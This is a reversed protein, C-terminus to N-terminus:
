KSVEGMRMATAVSVLDAKREAPVWVSVRVLGEARRRSDYDRQVEVHSKNKEM